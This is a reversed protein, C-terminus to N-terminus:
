KALLTVVLELRNRNQAPESEVAHKVRFADLGFEPVADQLEVDGLGLRYRTLVVDPDGLRLSTRSKGPPAERGAVLTKVFRGTWLPVAVQTHLLRHLTLVHEYRRVEARTRLAGQYGGCSKCLLESGPQRQQMGGMDGVFEIQIESDHFGGQLSLYFRAPFPHLFRSYGDVGKDRAPCRCLRDDFCRSPFPDIENHYSGVPTSPQLMQKDAAHRFPYDPQRWARHYHHGALRVPTSGVHGDVGRGRFWSVVLGGGQRSSVVDYSDVTIRGMIGVLTTPIGPMWFVM